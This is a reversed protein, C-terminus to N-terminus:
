ITKRLASPIGFPTGNKKDLDEHNSYFEEFSSSKSAKRKGFPSWYQV